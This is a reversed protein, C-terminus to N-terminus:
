AVRRNLAGPGTIARNLIVQAAAVDRDLVCGCPCSHVREKLEKPKVVGCQPCTQSTFRADVKVLQRGAREAKEALLQAFTSWAADNVDRALASRALGRVNLDEIAILDHDRVIRAALTHLATRRANQIREHLRTVRAKAKGRNRSGRKCRALARQRRRMQAQVKRAHRPGPVTEGTSLAALSSLGVDVGVQAGTIPLPEAAVECVLRVAWGKADRKITCSLPESPLPRHMHIRIHGISKIYLRDAKVRWGFGQSSALGFSNFWDRGKFRPFGPKEGVSARRFFATFAQDLKRLPWRQIATPFIAFAPDTRLEKLSMAQTFYSRGAGTKRYCDIREQLAANYLQRTHELADRLRAHQGKRPLLRFKYTRVLRAGGTM